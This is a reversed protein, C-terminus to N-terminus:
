PISFYNAIIDSVASFIHFYHPPPKEAFSKFELVVKLIAQEQQKM